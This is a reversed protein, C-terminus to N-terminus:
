GSRKGLRKAIWKEGRRQHFIAIVTLLSASELRYFLCFPFKGCVVRHYGYKVSHSGGHIELSRIDRKMSNRFTSGLGEDQNEYFWFGDVLDLEAEDSIQVKM